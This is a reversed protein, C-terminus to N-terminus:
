FGLVHEAKLAHAGKLVYGNIACLFEEPLGLVVPTAVPFEDRSPEATDRAAEEKREKKTKKKKRHYGNNDRIKWGKGGKNKKAM